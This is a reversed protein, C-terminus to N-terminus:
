GKNGRASPPAVTSTSSSRDLRSVVESSNSVSLRELLASLIAQNTSYQETHVRQLDSKNAEYIAQLREGYERSEEVRRQQAQGYLHLLLAVVGAWSGTTLLDISGPGIPNAIQALLNIGGVGGVLGLIAGDRIM